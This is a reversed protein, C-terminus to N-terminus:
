FNCDAVTKITKEILANQQDSSNPSRYAVGVVLSNNGSVKITCWVIDDNYTKPKYEVAGYCNNVYLVSRRGSFNTFATYGDINVEM